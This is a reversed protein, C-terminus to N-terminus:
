TAASVPWRSLCLIELKGKKRVAAFGQPAVVFFAAAAAVATGIDIGDVALAAAAASAVAAAAGPADAVDVLAGAEHVVYRAKPLAPTGTLNDMGHVSKSDSALRHLPIQQLLGVSHRSGSKSKRQKAQISKLLAKQRKNDAAHPLLLLSGSLCQRTVLLQQLLGFRRLLLRKLPPLLCLLALWHSGKNLRKEQHNRGLPPATHPRCCHKRRHISLPLLRSTETSKVVTMM